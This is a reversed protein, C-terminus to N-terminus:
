EDVAGKRLTDTGVIQTVGGPFENTSCRTDFERRTLIHIGYLYVLEQPPVKKELYSRINDHLDSRSQGEFAHSAVLAHVREWENVGLGMAVIVRSESRDNMLERLANEISEIATEIDPKAVM